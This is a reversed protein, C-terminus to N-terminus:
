DGIANNTEGARVLGSEYALVAIQVRDRVDLKALLRSVYSKVTAESLFLLAAIESNALGRAVLKAIETERGTLARVAEPLSAPTAGHREVLREIVAPALLAEGAAIVRVGQVLGAPSVSKLLFGSAGARIVGYVYEDLDYTTLALVKPPDPATLIRRTAEIGDMRPMRIDVIVVDPRHQRALAVAEVGDEAEAVVEIGARELILRFGTRVLDQDDAVLVRMADGAGKVM